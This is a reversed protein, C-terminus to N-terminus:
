PKIAMILTRNFYTAELVHQHDNGTIPVKATNRDSGALLHQHDNAMILVKTINLLGSVHMTRKKANRSGNLPLTLFYATCVYGILDINRLNRNMLQAEFIHCRLVLFPINLVGKLLEEPRRTAAVLQRYPTATLPCRSQPVPTNACM